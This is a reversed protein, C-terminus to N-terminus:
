ITLRFVWGAGGIYPHQAPNWIENGFSSGCPPKTWGSFATEAFPEFITLNLLTRGLGPGLFNAWYEVGWTEGIYTWLCANAGDQIIQFVRNPPGPWGEEHLDGIEIGKFTAYLIEPTKDPEYCTLCDRGIPDPLPDIRIGM